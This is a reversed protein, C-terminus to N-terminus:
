EMVGYVMIIDLDQNTLGSKNTYWTNPGAVSYVYTDQGVVAYAVVRSPTTVVGYVPQIITNPDISIKQVGEFGTVEEVPYTFCDRCCKSCGFRKDKFENEWIDGLGKANPGLLHGYVQGRKNWCRESLCGIVWGEYTIGCSNIGATCDHCVQLNDAEVIKLKNKAVDIKKRLYAIGEANLQLENGMTLQVQWIIKDDSLPQQKAKISNISAVIHDFDWINHTGFNTIFTVNYDVKEAREQANDFDKLTNVSLGFRNIHKLNDKHVPNDIIWGNTVVKVNDCPRLTTLIKNMTESSLCGPEGGSLTLEEPPYLKIAAAISEINDIRLNGININIIDKSGCYSCNKNCQNTVEWIIEKLKLKSM